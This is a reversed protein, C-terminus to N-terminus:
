ERIDAAEPQIVTDSAIDPSMDVTDGALPSRDIFINLGKLLNLAEHLQNDERLLEASSIRRSAREKSNIERGGKGNLHRALDAETTTIGQQIGAIQVREVTVDPEIGQAQISRGNPTYYLATTLKIARDHSIPIVSQVSGKGFSRTGM